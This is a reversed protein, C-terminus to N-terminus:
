APLAALLAGVVIAPAYAFRNDVAHSEIDRANRGRTRVFATSRSFTDRLRRRRAAVVLALAAGAITIYVFASATRGPGLLTGIAALLKVDGAGTGAFLHGPLMVAAGVVLGWAAAAATADSAHFMALAFGLAATGGTLWNPVRRTRFDIAAAVIGVAAVAAITILRPSV